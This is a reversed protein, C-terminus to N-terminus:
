SDSVNYPFQGAAAADGNLTKSGGTSVGDGRRLVASRTWKSDISFEAGTSPPMQVEFASAIAAFALFFLLLSSRIFLPHSAM